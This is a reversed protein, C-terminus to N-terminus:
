PTAECEQELRDALTRLLRAALHRDTGDTITLRVPALSGAVAAPLSGSTREVHGTADIAFTTHRTVSM